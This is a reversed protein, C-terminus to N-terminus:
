KSYNKFDSSLTYNYILPIVAIAATDGALIHNRFSSTEKFTFTDRTAKPLM